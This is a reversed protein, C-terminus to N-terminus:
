KVGRDLQVQGKGREKRGGSGTGGVHSGEMCSLQISLVKSLSSVGFRMHPGQLRLVMEKTSLFGLSAPASM